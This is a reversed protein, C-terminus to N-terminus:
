NKSVPIKGVHDVHIKEKRKEPYNRHARFAFIILCCFEGM